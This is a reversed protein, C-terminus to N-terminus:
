AAENGNLHARLEEIHKLTEELTYTRGQEVDHMGAEVAAVLESEWVAENQKRAVYDEFFDESMMVYAGRGNETLHVVERRAHEKVEAPRKQLDSIPYIVSM